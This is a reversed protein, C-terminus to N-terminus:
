SPLEILGRKMAFIVAELKSHAQLKTMANKLHARVTHVTIGLESAADGTSMGTAVTQLVQLERPALPQTAVEPARAASLSRPRTMLNVLVDPAFVLEGAHVRKISEVLETPQHDTTQHGAAGAQVCALLEAQDDSSSTLVVIKLHPHDTMLRGVVQASDGSGTSNDLLVVDPQASRVRESARNPDTESGQVDLDPDAGLAIALADALLQHEGVVLVKVRHRSASDAPRGDDFHRPVVALGSRGLPGAERPSDQFRSGQMDRLRKEVAM